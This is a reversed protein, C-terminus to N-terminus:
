SPREVLHADVGIGSIILTRLHCLDVKMIYPLNGVVEWRDWIEHSESSFSKSVTIKGVIDEHFGICCSGVVPLVQAKPIFQRVVPIAEPPLVWFPFGELDSAELEDEQVVSVRKQRRADESLQFAISRVWGQPVLTRLAAARDYNFNLTTQDQIGMKSRFTAVKFPPELADEGINFHRLFAASTGGAGELLTKPREQTLDRVISSRGRRTAVLLRYDGEERQLDTQTARATLAQLIQTEREREVTWTILNAELEPRIRPLPTALTGDERLVPEPVYLDGENLIAEVKGTVQSVVQIGEGLQFFEDALYRSVQQAEEFHETGWVGSLRVTLNDTL